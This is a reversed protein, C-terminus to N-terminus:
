SWHTSSSSTSWTNKSSSPTNENCGGTEAYTLTPAGPATSVGGNIMSAKDPHHAKAKAVASRANECRGLPYPNECPLYRCGRTVNHVEYEGSDRQPNLNLVFEDM